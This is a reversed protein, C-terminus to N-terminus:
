GLIAKVVKLKGEFPPYKLPLDFLQAANSELVAKKHTFADFGYAGHYAGQGSSRIGGFPMGTDTMHLICNNVCGGGFSVRDVILEREAADETFLYLALPNPNRRVIEPVDAVSAIKFVPLVPGFIEEGMVPDDHTVGTLITPEIYRDAPDTRGGHALKADDILAAIRAFHADNVIRGYDPSQQPDEGYMAIVERRIGDVLADHIDEHLLLYDPAICTQGNNMWKAWAIRKAATALNASQGVICPSKGGLELTCRSLHEAAAKAVIKGVRPSGTFFFHDFPLALLEQSIEVGGEVCAVYEPSFTERIMETVAESCAPTLESPKLIAVNGGAICPVLPSLVLQVPYNWAGVILNTGLPQKYVVSRSPQAAIPSFKRDPKAWSALHSIAEKVDNLVFGVESTYAEFDGKRLDEHLAEQFRPGHREVAAKLAELQARRFALPLTAGSHFFREQTERLAAVDVDTRPRITNM